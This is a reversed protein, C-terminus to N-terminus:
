CPKCAWYSHIYYQLQTLVINMAVSGALRTLLQYKLLTGNFTVPILQYMCVTCCLIEHSLIKKFKTPNSLVQMFNNESKLESAM